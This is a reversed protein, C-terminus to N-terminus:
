KRLLPQPEQRLHSRAFGIVNKVTQPQLPPKVALGQPPRQVPDHDTMLRQARREDGDFTLGRLADRRWFLTPEVQRLAIQAFLDAGPFFQITQDPFLGGGPKIQRVPRQDSPSQYPHSFLLVRQQDGHV